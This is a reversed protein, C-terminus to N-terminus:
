NACNWWWKWRGSPREEPGRAMIIVVVVSALVPERHFLVVSCHCLGTGAGFFPHIFRHVLSHSRVSSSPLERQLLSIIFSNIMRWKFNIRNKQVVSLGKLIWWPCVYSEFISNISYLFHESPAKTTALILKHLLLASCNLNRFFCWRAFIPFSKMTKM